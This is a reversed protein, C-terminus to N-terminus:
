QFLVVVGDTSTNPLLSPNWTSCSRLMPTPMNAATSAVISTASRSITGDITPPAIAPSRCFWVSCGNCSVSSVGVPITTPM